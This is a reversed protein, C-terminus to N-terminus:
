QGLAESVDTPADYTTDSLGELASVVDDPAGSDRAAEVLTSRDAPYDVGGLYRQVEIPNQPESMHEGKRRPEPRASGSEPFLEDSAEVRRDVISTPAELHVAGSPLIGAGGRHEMVKWQAVRDEGVHHEPLDRWFAFGDAERLADADFLVCAGIWAVRYALRDDDDLELRSALHALNAANHLPWRDHEPTDPRVREPHVSAPPWPEFPALEDPRPDDLFSLGQVGYGVFGCQQESLSADLRALAGPELWVDDDLFLVRPSSACSFLFDRQEALGRKPLHRRVEVSRGQARLVRIIGRVAPVHEVPQESQDSIVVRFPPDDQAALGALAVALEAGRDATPILVDVAATHQPAPRAWHAAGRRSRHPRERRVRDDREM